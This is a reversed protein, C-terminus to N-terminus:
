HRTHGRLWALLGHEHEMPQIPGYIRLRECPDTVWRPKAWREPRSKQYSVPMM